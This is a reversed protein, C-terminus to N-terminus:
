SDKGLKKNVRESGDQCRGKRKGRRAHNENNGRHHAPHTLVLSCSLLHAFNGKEEQAKLGGPGESHREQGGAVGLPSPFGAKTTSTVSSLAAPSKLVYFALPCTKVRGDEHEDTESCQASVSTVQLELAPSYPSM